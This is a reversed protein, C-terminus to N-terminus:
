RAKALLGGPRMEKQIQGKVTASILSGLEKGKESSSESSEEGTSMNINTVVSIAGSGSGSITVPITRGDPLPVYAEPTSGEGFISLQPSKAVGGKSYTRLPIPGNATMVNGNASTTVALASAGGGSIAGGAVGGFLGSLGQGLAGALPGTISSQIAIRILDKIISNALSAFDLKGGMVFDTLADAMSNFSNKTADEIQKGVNTAEDAYERLGRMLGGQFSRQQEQELAIIALRQEKIAETAKMLEARQEETMTKSYRVAEADLRRAERVRELEIVTFQLDGLADKRQKNELEQQEIFEKVRDRNEQRAAKTAKTLADLDAAQKRTDNQPPPKTNEIAQSQGKGFLISGSNAGLLRNGFALTEETRKRSRAAFGNLLDDNLEIRAKERAAQREALADGQQMAAAFDGTVFSKLQSARTKIEDGLNVLTNILGLTISRGLTIVADAGNVLAEGFGVVVVATIRAAEALAQVIGVADEGSKFEEFATGIEQLTPLLEKFAAVGSDRLQLGIRTLTDNFAEARAAFDGDLAQGFESLADSGSNLLPILDSGSKGFLKVALAAKAAGDPMKQFRDALEKFVVETPKVQGGADKVSIGVAKFAAQAQAGGTSAEVINVALKKLGVGLNEVPVDALAAADKFGSLAQVGIGTKQALKNLEDGADLISKGFQVAERVVFAGALLKMGRTLTSLGSAVSGASRNIGEMSSKFKDIAQQGSVEARLRFALDQNV